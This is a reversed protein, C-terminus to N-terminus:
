RGIFEPQRKALFAGIGEAADATDFAEAFAEAEVSLGAELSLGLGGNIARKALGIAVTPGLAWEGAVSLATELLEPAPVVRDALGMDQAEAAGVMRGSYIMDRARALGVLRPLRQTGGAGPIIGLRTEPQGVQADEALIRFDCAMALELGGGLAYGVVAAIVPKPLDEIRRAAESLQRGLDAPSAGSEMAREFFAIDAGAAFHPSGTVVVARVTPDAAEDVAAILEAILEPSLANVKPRDLTILAVAEDTEYHVLPM